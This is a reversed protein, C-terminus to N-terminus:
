AQISVPTGMPTNEFLWRAQATPMRVSGNSRPVGFTHGANGQWPAAHICNTENANM